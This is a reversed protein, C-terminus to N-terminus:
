VLVGAIENATKGIKGRVKAVKVSSFGRTSV